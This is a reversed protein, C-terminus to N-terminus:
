PLESSRPVAHLLGEPLTVFVEGDPDVEVKEQLVRLVHGGGTRVIYEMRGGRYTRSVVRARLFRSSRVTEEQRSIALEEPKLVIDVSTGAELGPVSADRVIGAGEIEFGGDGTVVAPLLNSNGVFRAVFGTAPRTYIEEPTGVQLLKGERMVAVRDALSLAEEQDHTVYVATTGLEDLILRVERRMEERL